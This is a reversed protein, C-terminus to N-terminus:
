DQKSKDLSRSRGGDGFIDRVSSKFFETLSSEEGTCDSETTEPNSFESADFTWAAHFDGKLCVAGSFSILLSPVIYLLAPQGHQYMIMVTMTVILGLIYSCVSVIFYFYGRNVAKLSFVLTQSIFIGPIVIDGLGLLSKKEHNGFITKPFLLVVPGRIRSAVSVMVSTGFVWFVDYFFLLVLLVYVTRFRGISLSEVATVGLAFALINNLMWHNTIVYALSILCYLVGTLVRPKCYTKMLQAMAFTAGISMYTSIVLNVLTPHLYKFAIFLSFLVASGIFPMSVADKMAIEGLNQKSSLLRHSGLSVITVANIIFYALALIIQSM